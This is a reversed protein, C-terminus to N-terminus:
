PRVMQGLHISVPVAHGQEAQVRLAELVVYLAAAHYDRHATAHHKAADCLEALLSYLHEGVTPVTTTKSM